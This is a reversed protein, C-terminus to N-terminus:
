VMDVSGTQKCCSQPNRFPLEELAIISYFCLCSVTSVYPYIWVASVASSDVSLLRLDVWLTVRPFPLVHKVVRCSDGLM